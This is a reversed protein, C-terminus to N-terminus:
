CRPLRLDHQLHTDEEQPIPRSAQQRMTPVQRCPYIHEAQFLASTDHAYWWSCSHAGALPTSPQLWMGRDLGAQQQGQGIRSCSAAIVARLSSPTTYTSVVLEKLASLSSAM